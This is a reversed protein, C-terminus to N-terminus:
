EGSRFIAWLHCDAHRENPYERILSDQVSRSREYGTLLGKKSLESNSFAKPFGGCNTLASM